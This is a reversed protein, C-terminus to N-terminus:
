EAADAKRRELETAKMELIELNSTIHHTCGFAIAATILKEPSDFTSNLGKYKECIAAAKSEIDPNKSIEVTIKRYPLDDANQNDACEKRINAVGILTELIVTDSRGLERFQQVVTELNSFDAAISDPMKSKKNEM